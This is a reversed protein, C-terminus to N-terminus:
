EHSVEPYLVGLAETLDAVPIYIDEGYIRMHIEASDCANSLMVRTTHGRCDECRYMEIDKKDKPKSM